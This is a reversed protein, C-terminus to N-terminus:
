SKKSIMSKFVEPPVFNKIDGNRNWVEKVLSSSIFYYQASTMLFVTDLKNYLERNMSAMQFEAEFDGSARLGRVLTKIENKQAYDILLGDDSDIKVKKNSKFIDNLVKVREEVNLLPNKTPSKAVLIIIEDFLELARKVIDLHGNTFPDFSGPYIVKKM